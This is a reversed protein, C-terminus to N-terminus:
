RSGYYHIFYDTTSSKASANSDKERVIFRKNMEKTHKKKVKTNLPKVRKPSTECLCPINIM